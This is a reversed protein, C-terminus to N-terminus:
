LAFRFLIALGSVFEFVMFLVFMMWDKESYKWIMGLFCVFAIIYLHQLSM